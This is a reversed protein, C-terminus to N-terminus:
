FYVQLNVVMKGNKFELDKKEGKVIKTELLIVLFNKIVEIIVLTKIIIVIQIIIQQVIIKYM